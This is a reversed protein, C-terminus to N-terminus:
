KATVRARAMAMNSAMSAQPGQGAYKANDRVNFFETIGLAVPGPWILLHAAEPDGYKNGAWWILHEGTVMASGVGMAFLWTHFENPHPGLIPNGEVCCGSKQAHVSSAADAAWSAMILTDAVLLRKHTRVYHSAKAALSVKVVQAQTVWSTVLLLSILVALRKGM